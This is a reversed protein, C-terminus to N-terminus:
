DFNKPVNFPFELNNVKEVKVYELNLTVAEKQSSATANILYPFISQDLSKYGSYGAKVTRKIDNLDTLSITHLRFDDKRVEIEFNSTKNKGVFQYTAENQSIASEMYNYENPSNGFMLDQILQFNVDTKLIGSLFTYDAAHYQKSFRDIIKVSDKTMLVRAVEIGGLANVSIWVRENKQARINFTLSFDKGERTIKVKAKATVYNFDFTTKHIDDILKIKFADEKSLELQTHAASQPVKKVKCGSASFGLLVILLYLINRNM